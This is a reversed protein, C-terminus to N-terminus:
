LVAQKHSAPAPAHHRRKPFPAPPADAGISKARCPASSRTSPPPGRRAEPGAEDALRARGPFPRGPDEGAVPPRGGIAAPALRPRKRPM